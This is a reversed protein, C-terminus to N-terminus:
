LMAAFGAILLLVEPIPPWELPFKFYGKRGEDYNFTDFFVGLSQEFSTLHWTQWKEKAAKGRATKGGQHGARGAELGDQRPRLLDLSPPSPSSSSRPPPRLLKSPGFKSLCNEKSRFFGHGAIAWVFPLFGM